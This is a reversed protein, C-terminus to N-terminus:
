SSHIDCRMELALKDYSSYLDISYVFTLLYSSGPLTDVTQSMYVM